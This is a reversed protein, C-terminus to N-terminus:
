PRKEEWRDSVLQGITKRIDEMTFPKMLFGMGNAYAGASDMEKSFGTMIILPIDPRLNRIGFAAEKGSVLPMEIDTIILDFAGPWREFLELAKEGDKCTSVHCGLKELMIKLVNRVAPDDEAMLIRKGSTDNIMEPNTCM